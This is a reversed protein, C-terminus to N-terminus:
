ELSFSSNQRLIQYSKYMREVSRHLNCESKHSEVDDVLIDTFVYNNDVKPLWPVEPRVVVGELRLMNLLIDFCDNFDLPPQLAPIRIAPRLKINSFDPISILPFKKSFDSGTCLPTLFIDENNIFSRYLTPSLEAVKRLHKEARQTNGVTKEAIVGLLFMDPSNLTDYIDFIGNLIECTRQLGKKTRIFMSCLTLNYLIELREQELIPNDLFILEKQGSIHTFILEFLDNATDYEENYFKQLGEIWIDFKESFILGVGKTLLRGEMLNKIIFLDNETNADHINELCSIAKDYEQKIIFCHAKIIEIEPTSKFSEALELADDPCNCVVLLYVSLLPANADKINSIKKLDKVAEVSNGAFFACLGRFPYLTKLDKNISMASAFCEYADEYNKLAVHCFGKLTFALFSNKDSNKICKEVQIMSVEFNAEFFNCMALLMYIESDKKNNKILKIEQFAETVDFGNQNSVILLCHIRLLRWMYNSSSKFNDPNLHGLTAYYNKSTYDVMALSLKYNYNSASDLNSLKQAKEYDDVASTFDKLFFHSFAKYILCIHLKEISTEKSILDKFLSISQEYNGQIVNYAAETHKAHNKKNESKFEWTIRKLTTFAGYFDNKCLKLYSLKCILRSLMDESKCIQAVKELLLEAEEIDGLLMKSKAIYYLAEQNCNDTKLVQNFHVLAEELSFFKYKLKGMEISFKDQFKGQENVKELYKIANSYNKLNKWCKSQLLFSKWNQIKELDQLADEYNKNKENIKGRIFRAEINSPFYKLCLDIYNKAELPKKLQTSCKYLSIFLGPSIPLGTNIASEFDLLAKLYDKTKFYCVGRWYLSEPTTTSKDLKELLSLANKYKKKAMEARIVLYPSSNNYIKKSFDKFYRGDKTKQGKAIETNDFTHYKPIFCKKVFSKGANEPSTSTLFRRHISKFKRSVIGKSKDNIGPTYSAGRSHFSSNNKSRKVEQKRKPSYKGVFSQINKPKANTLCDPRTNSSSYSTNLPLKKRTTM